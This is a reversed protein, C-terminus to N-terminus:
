PVSSLREAGEQTTLRRPLGDCGFGFSLPLFQHRVREAMAVAGCPVGTTQLGLLQRIGHPVAKLNMHSGVGAEHRATKLIGESRRITARCLRRGILREGAERDSSSHEVNQRKGSMRHSPLGNPELAQGLRNWSWPRPM